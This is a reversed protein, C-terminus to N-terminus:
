ENEKAIKVIHERVTSRRGEILEVINTACQKSKLDSLYETNSAIHPTCLTNRHNMLERITSNVINKDRESWVDIAAFRVRNDNLAELLLNENVIECRATNILYIGDDNINKFFKEGIIHRTESNLALHLSIINCTQSLEEIKEVKKISYKELFLNNSSSWTRNWVKVRAGFMSLLACVQKGINGLGIIGIESNFLEKGRGGGRWILKDKLLYNNNQVCYSLNLILGLTFEGVTKSSLDNTITTTIHRKLWLDDVAVSDIGAGFRSVTKLRDYMKADNLDFKNSGLIIGVVFEYQEASVEFTPILDHEEFIKKTKDIDFVTRPHILVYRPPYISRPRGNIEGADSLEFYLIEGNIIKRKKLGCNRMLDLYYNLIENHSVILHTVFPSNMIKDHFVKLRNFVQGTTEAAQDLEVCPEGTYAVEEDFNFSSRGEVNGWYRQNILDTHEMNKINLRKSIWQASSISRSQESTWILCQNLSENKLFNAVNNIEDTGKQTLCTDNSQGQVLRKKNAETEGHRILYIKKM